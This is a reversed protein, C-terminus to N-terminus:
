QNRGATHHVEGYPMATFYVPKLPVRRGVPMQIPRKSRCTVSLSIKKVEGTRIDLLTSKNTFIHNTILHDERAYLYGFEMTPM